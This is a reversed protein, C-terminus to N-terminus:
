DGDRKGGSLFVLNIGRGVEDTEQTGAKKLYVWILGTAFIAGILNAILDCMTDCLDIQAPHPLAVVQDILFEVIEWLGGLSFVLPIVLLMSSHAAMVRGIQRSFFLLARWVSLGIFVAWSFHLVKDYHPVRRYFDLGVGFFTHFFLLSTVVLDWDGAGPHKRTFDRAIFSIALSVASLIPVFREGGWLSYFALGALACRLITPLIGASRKYFGAVSSLTIRNM